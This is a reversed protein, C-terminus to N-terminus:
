CSLAYLKYMKHQRDALLTTTNIVQNPCINACLGYKVCKKNPKPVLSLNALKKYPSNSPIHSASLIKTENNNIKNKIADAFKILKENDTADPRNTAYQHM